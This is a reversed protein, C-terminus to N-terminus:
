ILKDRFNWYYIQIVYFTLFLKFLGIYNNLTYIKNPHSICAESNPKLIIYLIELLFDGIPCNLARTLLFQIM